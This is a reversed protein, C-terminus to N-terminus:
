IRKQEVHHCDWCGVGRTKSLQETGFQRLPHLSSVNAYEHCRDCFAERNVHCGMCTNSLSMEYDAGSKSVYTKAGKRVVDDRWQNLLEMHHARMYARDEVCRDIPLELAPPPAPRGAAWTYWFPFTLAGLGVVLGAIIIPRDSM